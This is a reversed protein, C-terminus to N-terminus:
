VITAMDGIERELRDAEERLGAAIVDEGRASAVNVLHRLALTIRWKEGSEQFAELAQRGVLEAGELDGAALRQRGLYLLPGGLVWYDGARRLQEVSLELLERDEDAHDPDCRDLFLNTGLGWYAFGVCWPEGTATGADIAELGAKRALTRDGVSGAVIGLYVITAVRDFVDDASLSNEEMAQRWQREAEILVDLALRSDGISQLAEGRYFLLRGYSGQVAARLRVPLRDLHRCIGQSFTVGEGIRNRLLWYWGLGVALRAAEPPDNLVAWQVAARLNGYEFDLRTLSTPQDRTHLRSTTENLLAASFNIMARYAEEGECLEELRDIAFERVTQLLEFRDTGVRRVLNKALLSHLLDISCGSVSIASKLDFSDFPSLRRLVAQHGSQLLDYSWRITAELTRQRDPLDRRDSTLIPLARDLRVLLDDLTFLSVRAAALEVALPLGDLRHCIARLASGSAFSPNEARARENFLDIADSDSLPGVPLLQEGAVRLPERSTVLVHLNPTQALLEAVAPAADIVQEFNDLVLLIRRTGIHAAIDVRAGLAQAVAPIVLDSATVTQLSVWCLGDPMLDGCRTAVEAALRTKGSGGAGVMTVLRRSNLLERALAM